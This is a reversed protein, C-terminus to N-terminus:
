FYSAPVFELPNSNTEPFRRCCVLSQLLVRDRKTTYKKTRNITLQTYLALTLTIIGAVYDDDGDDDDNDIVVSSITRTMMMTMMM